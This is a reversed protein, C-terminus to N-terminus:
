TAVGTLVQGSFTGALVILIMIVIIGIHLHALGRLQTRGTDRLRFYDATFIVFLIGIFFFNVQAKTTASIVRGSNSPIVEVKGISAQRIQDIIPAGDLNGVWYNGATDRSSFTVQSNTTLASLPATTQWLSNTLKTFKYEQSGNILILEQLHPQSVNLTVNNNRSETITISKLEVPDAAFDIKFVTTASPNSERNGIASVANLSYDGPALQTAFYTYIGENADTTVFEKGNNFLRIQTAEPATGRITVSTSNFASNTPPEAITPTPLEGGTPIDTGVNTIQPAAFHVTIIINNARGQYTGQVIGFGVEEYDKRLINDRHTPSNMWATMVDEVDYFGEALNEGAVFYAYGADHFFDWPEKGDPCYHSWCNSALMAQAKRQASIALVPNFKLAPLNAQKREENHKDLLSTVALDSSSASVSIPAVFANFLLVAVLVLGLTALGRRSSYHTQTQRPLYLAFM